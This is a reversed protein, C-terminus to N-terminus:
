MFDILMFSNIVDEDSFLSGNALTYTYVDTNNELLVAEPIASPDFSSKDYRKVTLQIKGVVPETGKHSLSYLVMTDSDPCRATVSSIKDDSIALMCGMQVSLVADMAPVPVLEGADFVNWVAAYCVATVDETKGYEM